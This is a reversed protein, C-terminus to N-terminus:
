FFFKCPEPLSIQRSQSRRTTAGPQDDHAISQYLIYAFILLPWCVYIAFLYLIFIFWIYRMSMEDLNNPQNVLM